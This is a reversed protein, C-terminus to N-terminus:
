GMGLAKSLERIIIKENIKIANELYKKGPMYGMYPLKSQTKEGPIMQVVRGDRTKRFGEHQVTAYEDVEPSVGFDIYMSELSKKVEGVILAAELDGSDIPALRKADTIIKEALKTLTDELRKEVEKEIEDLKDIIAEIGEIDFKFLERNDM